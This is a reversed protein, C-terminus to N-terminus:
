SCRIEGSGQKSQQCQAGGSIDIDGSGAISAKAQGTVRARINGSGAIEADANVATLGGADVDGSGAISYSAQQAQGAVKVSGSGSIALALQKISAQGVNLNGSGAIAGAFREGNVRDVMVDGSGTIQAADLSPVSVVVKAPGGNWNFGGFWGKREPRILLKGDVVEVKLAEILKEPGEAAVAVPKGTSVAVDFPGTVELSTFAGVQYTRSTTPGSEARSESCAGTAFLLASAAALHIPRM